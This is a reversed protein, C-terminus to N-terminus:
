AVRAFFLVAGNRKGVAFEPLMAEVAECAGEMSEGRRPHVEIAWRDVRARDAASLGKLADFEAGECDMKVFAVRGRHSRLIESFPQAPFVEGPGAAAMFRHAGEGMILRLSQSHALAVRWLSGGWPEMNAVWVECNEQIPEIAVVSAGLWAALCSVAGVYAGADIVLDGAGVGAARLCYEDEILAAQLTDGDITGARHFLPHPYVPGVQNQVTWPVIPESM